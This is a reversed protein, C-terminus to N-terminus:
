TMHRNTERRCVLPPNEPSWPIRLLTVAQCQLYRRNRQSLSIMSHPIMSLGLTNLSAALELFRVSAASLSLQAGSNGVQAKLSRVVVSQRGRDGNAFDSNTLELMFEAPSMLPSPPYGQSEFYRISDGPPGYYVTNGESLLLTNDFLM